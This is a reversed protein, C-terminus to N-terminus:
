SELHAAGPKPLAKAGQDLLTAGFGASVGFALWEVLTSGVGAYGGAGLAVSLGAGVAISAFIVAVGDLQKLISARLFQVTAWVVAGLAGTSLVWTAPDRMDESLGIVNALLALLLPIIKTMSVEM